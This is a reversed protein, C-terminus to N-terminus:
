VVWPLTAQAIAADQESIDGNLPSQARVRGSVAVILPAKHVLCRLAAIDGNRLWVQKSFIKYPLQYPIYPLYIIINLYNGMRLADVCLHCCRRNSPKCYGMTGNIKPVETVRELQRAKSGQQGSVLEVAGGIMLSCFGVGVLAEGIPLQM